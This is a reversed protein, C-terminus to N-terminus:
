KKEIQKGTVPDIRDNGVVLVLSDGEAKLEMEQVPSDKLSGAIIEMLRGEPLKVKDAAYKAILRLVDASVGGTASNAIKGVRQTKATKTIEVEIVRKNKYFYFGFTGPGEQRAKILTAGSGVQAVAAQYASNMDDDAAATMPLALAVVSAALLARFM